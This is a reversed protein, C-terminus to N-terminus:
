ADNSQVSVLDGAHWKCPRFYAPARVPALALAAGSIVSGVWGPRVRMFFDAKVNPSVYMGSIWIGKGKM